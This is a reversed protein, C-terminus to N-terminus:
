RAESVRRTLFRSIQDHIDEVHLKTMTDPGKSPSAEIAHELKRLSDQAVLRVDDSVAGQPAGAQLILGQVYFRQLDRRLPSVSQHNWIESSVSHLLLDYHESLSYSSQDHVKYANEAVRDTTSASMALALLNQELGGIIM